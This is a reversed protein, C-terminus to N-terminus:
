TQTMKQTQKSVNHKPKSVETIEDTNENSESLQNITIPGWEEDVNLIVLSSVFGKIETFIRNGPITRENAPNMFSFYIFINTISIFINTVMGYKVEPYIKM